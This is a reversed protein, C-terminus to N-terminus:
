VNEFINQGPILTPNLIPGFSTISFILLILPPLRRLVGFYLWSRQWAKIVSISESVNKKLKESSNIISQSVLAINDIMKKLSENKIDLQYERKVSEKYIKAQEQALLFFISILLSIYGYPVLWVYPINNQSMSVIDHFSTIILVLFAMSIIASSKNKDRVISVILLVINFILLPAILFNMINKFLFYIDTKTNQFIVIISVISTFSIIAVKLWRKKNLIKTAEMIFLTLSCMLLPFGFRTIKELLLEDSYDHYFVINSYSCCFFMCMFFLYLYKIDNFDNTVFRFLFYLGIILSFVFLAQILTMGFLNRIFVQKSINRSSSIKIKSFSTKEHIPFIEIAIRNIKDISNGYSLLDKSLYINSSNTKSSNNSEVYSGKKYILHENLYINVPYNSAGVYLSLIKDKLSENLYFISRLTYMKQVNDTKHSLDEYNYKKFSLESMDGTIYAGVNIPYGKDDVIYDSKLIHLNLILEDNKDNLINTSNADQSYANQVLNFLSFFLTFLILLTKSIKM